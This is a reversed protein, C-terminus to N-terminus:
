SLLVSDGVSASPEWCGRTDTRARSARSSRSLSYSRRVAASIPMVIPAPSVNMSRRPGDPRRGIIGTITPM